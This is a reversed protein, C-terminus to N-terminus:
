KLSKSFFDILKPDSESQDDYLDFRTKGDAVFLEKLEKALDIATRSYHLTQADNGAIM